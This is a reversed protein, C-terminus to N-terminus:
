CLLLPFVKFFVIWLTKDKPRNKYKNTKLLNFKEIYASHNKKEYKSVLVLYMHILSSNKKQLIFLSHNNVKMFALM